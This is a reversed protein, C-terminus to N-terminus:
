FVTVDGAVKEIDGSPKEIEVVVLYVGSPVVKGKHMGNWNNMGDYILQGWRNYILLRKVNNGNATAVFYNENLGDGNPSFATPLVYDVNAKISNASDWLFCVQHQNSMGGTSSIIGWYATTQGNFIDNAIDITITNRLVNDVLVSLQNTNKVYKLEITYWNGDQVNTKTDHFQIWGDNSPTKSLCNVGRHKGDGNKFFALHSVNPDNFDDPADINQFVDMELHLSPALNRVGLYQGGTVDVIRNNQAFAFAIGDAGAPDPKNGFNVKFKYTFDQNIPVKTKSWIAGVKWINDTTLTYCTTNQKSADHEIKFEQEEQAHVFGFLFLTLILLIPHKKNM